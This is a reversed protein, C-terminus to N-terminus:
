FPRDDGQRTQQTQETSCEYAIEMNRVIIEEIFHDVGLDAAVHVMALAFPRPDIGHACPRLVSSIKSELLATDDRYAFVSTKMAGDNYRAIEVGDSVRRISFDASPNLKSRYRAYEEADHRWRFEAGAEDNQCVQFWLNNNASHM